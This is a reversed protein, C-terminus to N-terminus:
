NLFASFTWPFHFYDPRLYFYIRVVDEESEDSSDDESVQSRDAGYQILLTMIASHRRGCALRLPTSLDYTLAEKDVSPHQLLYNVLAQNNAEVAQHLITRGSKGEQYVYILIVYIPPFKAVLM